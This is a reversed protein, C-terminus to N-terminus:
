NDASPIAIATRRDGRRRDVAVDINVQRRDSGRRRESAQRSDEDNAAPTPEVVVWEADIILRGDQSVQNTWVQGDFLRGDFRGVPDVFWGQTATAM